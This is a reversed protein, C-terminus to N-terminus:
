YNNINTVVNKYTIIESDRLRQRETETETETERERERERVWETLETLESLQRKNNLLVTSQWDTNAMVM